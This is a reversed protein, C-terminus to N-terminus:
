DWQDYQTTGNCHSSQRNVFDLIPYTLSESDRYLSQNRIVPIVLSEQHSSWAGRGPSLAVFQLFTLIFSSSIANRAVEIIMLPSVGRETAM